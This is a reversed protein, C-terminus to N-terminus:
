AKPQVSSYKVAKMFYGTGLWPGNTYLTILKLCRIALNIDASCSLYMEPDWPHAKCHHGLGMNLLCHPTSDAGKGWEWCFFVQSCSGSYIVKSVDIQVAPCDTGCSVSSLTDAKIPVALNWQDPAKIIHTPVASYSKLVIHRHFHWESILLLHHWARHM